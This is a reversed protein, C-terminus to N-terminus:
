GIPRRLTVVQTLFTQVTEGHQNVTDIHVLAVGRDSKKTDTVVEKVLINLRLTDGPRVPKKWRIDGGTSVIGNVPYFSSEVLLRMSVGFTHIGSASLGKFLTAKAGEPDVHFIQPDYQAAFALIEQETITKSGSEFVQGPALDELYICARTM